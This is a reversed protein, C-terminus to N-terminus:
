GYATRDPVGKYTRYASGASGILTGAASFYSANKKAEGEAKAADGSLRSGVASDELGRARNEGKYM